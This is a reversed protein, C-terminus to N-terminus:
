EYSGGGIQMQLIQNLQSLNRIDLARTHKMEQKTYAFKLRKKM